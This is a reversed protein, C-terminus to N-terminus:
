INFRLGIFLWPYRELLFALLRTDLGTALGIAVLLILAGFLRQILASYKTFVRVKQTAYQGGYAILLMPIGAGLSFAFLLAAVQALNQKTAALTLISGLIPGACPAWVAGLSLGLLFGSGLDNKQLAGKPTLKGVVPELKTFLTTQIAPFLMVLGFFGILAAAVYRWTEPSLGLVRGFSAFLVNLISFAFIFGFVIAFPRLPHRGTTSTGLLIPLLPLICPGGITVLGALLALLFQFM